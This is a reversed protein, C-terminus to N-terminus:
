RTQELVIESECQPCTVFTKHGAPMGAFRVDLEAHCTDEEEFSFLCGCEECTIKRKTGEKIIKKM